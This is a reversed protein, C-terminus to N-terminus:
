NTPSVQRISKQCRPRSHVRSGKVHVTKKSGFSMGCAPCVDSYIDEDVSDLSREMEAQQSKVVQYKEGLNRKAM